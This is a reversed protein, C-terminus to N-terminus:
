WSRPYPQMLDEIAQDTRDCIELQADLAAVYHAIKSRARENAHDGYKLVGAKLRGINGRVVDNSKREKEPDFKPLGAGFAFSHSLRQFPFIASVAGDSKIMRDLMKNACGDTKERVFRMVAPDIEVFPTGSEDASRKFASVQSERAYAAQYGTGFLETASHRIKGRTIYGRALVGKELLQLVIIWAHHVINIAGAPSVEASVIVCDSVQTSEFAMDKELYKSQPCVRPGYHKYHALEREERLVALLQQIEDLPRGHGAESAEVM